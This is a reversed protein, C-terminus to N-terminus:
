DNLISIAKKLIALADQTDRLERRLRENEKEMEEVTKPTTSAAKAVAERELRRRDKIWGYLTHYPVGLNEAIKHLDMSGSHEDVYNLADQKFERTYTRNM